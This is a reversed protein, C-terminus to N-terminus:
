PLNGPTVNVQQLTYVTTSNKICRALKSELLATGTYGIRLSTHPPVHEMMMAFTDNTLILM